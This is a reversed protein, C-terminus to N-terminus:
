SGRAKNRRAIVVRRVELYVRSELATRLVSFTTTTSQLGIFGFGFRPFGKNTEERLIRNRRKDSTFRKPLIFLPSAIISLTGGVEYLIDRNDVCHRASSDENPNKAPLDPLM